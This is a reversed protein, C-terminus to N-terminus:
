QRALGWFGIGIIAAFVLFAQNQHEAHPAAAVMVILVGGLAIVLLWIAPGVHRRVPARSRGRHRVVASLAILGDTAFTPRSPNASDTLRMPVLSLVAAGWGNLTAVALLDNTLSGSHRDGMLHGSVLAGVASAAPGAIAILALGLNSVGSPNFTMLGDFRWPRVGPAIRMDVGVLTARKAPGSGGVLVSIDRAGLCKAVLAHGMEHLLVLPVALVTTLLLYEGIGPLENMFNYVGQADAIVAV